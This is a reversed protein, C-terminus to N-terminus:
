WLKTLQLRESVVFGLGYDFAIKSESLNGMFEAAADLARVALCIVGLGKSWDQWLFLVISFLFRWHETVECALLFRQRLEWQSQSGVVSRGENLWMVDAAPETIAVHFDAIHDAKKEAEWRTIQEFNRM